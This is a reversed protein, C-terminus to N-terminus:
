SAAGRARRRAALFAADAPSLGVGPYHNPQRLRGSALASATEAADADAYGPADREDRKCAMCIIDRNFKSMITARTEADCRDCIPMPAGERRTRTEGLDIVGDVIATATAVDYGGFPASALNRIRRGRNM